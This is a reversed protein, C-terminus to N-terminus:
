CMFMCIWAACEPRFSYFHWIVLFHFVNRLHRQYFLCRRSIVLCRNLHFNNGFYYLHFINLNQSCFFHENVPLEVFRYFFSLFGLQHWRFEISWHKVRTVSSRRMNKHAFIKGLILLNWNLWMIQHELCYFYHYTPPARNKAYHAWKAIWRIARNCQQSCENSVSFKQFSIFEVSHFKGCANWGWQLLSCFLKERFIRKQLAIM